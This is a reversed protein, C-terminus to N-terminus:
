RIRVERVAVQGDWRGDRDVVYARLPMRGAAIGDYRVRGDLSMTYRGAKPMAESPVGSRPGPAFQIVDDDDLGVVREAHSDDSFRDEDFRGDGLQFMVFRDDRDTATPFPEGDLLVSAELGVGEGSAPDDAHVITVEGWELGHEEVTSTRTPEVGAPRTAVITTLVLASGVAVLLLTRMRGAADESRAETAVKAADM